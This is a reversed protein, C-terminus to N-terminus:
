NIIKIKNEIIVDCHKIAIMNKIQVTSIGTFKCIRFLNSKNENWSPYLHLKGLVDISAIIIGNSKLYVVKNLKWETIEENKTNLLKCGSIKKFICTFIGKGRKLKKM